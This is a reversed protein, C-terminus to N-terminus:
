RNLYRLSRYKIYLGRGGGGERSESSALSCQKENQYWSDARFFRPSMETHRRLEVPMLIRPTVIPTLQGLVCSTEANLESGAAAPRCESM